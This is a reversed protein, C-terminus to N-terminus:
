SAYGLQSAISINNATLESLNLETAIKNLVPQSYYLNAVTIGSILTWMWLVGRKIGQNPSLTQKM